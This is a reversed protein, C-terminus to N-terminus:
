KPYGERKELAVALAFLAAWNDSTPEVGFTGSLSIAEQDHYGAELKGWRLHFHLDPRSVSLQGLMRVALGFRVLEDLEYSTVPMM